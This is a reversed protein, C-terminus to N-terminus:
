QRLLAIGHSHVSYRNERRKVKEERERLQKNYMHTQINKFSNQQLIRLSHLRRKRETKRTYENHQITKDEVQKYFLLWLCGEKRRLLLLDFYEQKRM